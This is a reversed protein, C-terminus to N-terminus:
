QGEDALFLRTFWKKLNSVELFILKRTTSWMGDNKLNRLKMMKTLFKGKLAVTQPWSEMQTNLQM